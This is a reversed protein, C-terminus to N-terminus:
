PIFRSHYTHISTSIDMENLASKLESEMEGYIYVFLIKFMGKTLKNNVSGLWCVQPCNSPAEEAEAGAGWGAQAM